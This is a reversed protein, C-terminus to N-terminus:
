KKERLLEAIRKELADIKNGSQFVKGSYDGNLKFGRM